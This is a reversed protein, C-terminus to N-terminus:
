VSEIKAAIRAATTGAAPLEQAGDGRRGQDQVSAVIGEHGGVGDRGGGLERGADVEIQLGVAPMAFSM